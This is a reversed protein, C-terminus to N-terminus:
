DHSPAIEDCQEAARGRPPRRNGTRLLGSLNKADTKEPVTRRSRRIADFSETLTKAVESINVAPVNDDFISPGLAVGLTHTFQGFFQDPELDINDDRRTGDVGSRGLSRGCSNWNYKHAMSVRKAATM